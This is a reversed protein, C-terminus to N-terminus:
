YDKCPLTTRADTWTRKDRGMVWRRWAIEQMLVNLVAGQITWGM